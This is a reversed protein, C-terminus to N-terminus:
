LRRYIFYRDAPVGPPLPMPELRANTLALGSAAIGGGVLLEPMLVSLWRATARDIEAYATEIDAHVLAAGIGAFGTATESIEGLLGNSLLGLSGRISTLPTRLEHSVTSVFEDKMRDLANRQSIDRFSLVSGVAIGHELMPTVSFEVAFSTRDRRYFVDQGGTSEHLLFARKARCHEGCNEPAANRHVISHVSHGILEAPSAGLMQAAAPNVFDVLGDPDSGFIGDAVSNLIFENQRNLERVRSEQASRAMFQGISACVTEVSAMTEADEQARQRSFFEAVAIVQNGVRVPM